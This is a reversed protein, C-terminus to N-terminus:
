VGQSDTGLHYKSCPGQCTPGKALQFHRLLLPWPVPSTVYQVDLQDLDDGCHLHFMMAQRLASEALLLGASKQVSNGVSGTAELLVPEAISDAFSTDTPDSAAVSMTGSNSRVGSYWSGPTKTSRWAMSGSVDKTALAIGSRASWRASTADKMSTGQTLHVNQVIM